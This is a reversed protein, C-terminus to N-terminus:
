DKLPSLNVQKKFLYKMQSPNNGVTLHFLASKNMDDLSKNLKARQMIYERESTKKRRYIILIIIGTMEIEVEFKQNKLM